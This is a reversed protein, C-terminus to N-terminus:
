PDFLRLLDFDIGLERLRRDWEVEEILQAVLVSALLRELGAAARAAAERLARIADEM